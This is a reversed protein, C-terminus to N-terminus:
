LLLQSNHWRPPSSGPSAAGCCRHEVMAGIRDALIFIIIIIVILIIIIWQWCKGGTDKRQWCEGEAEGSGASVERRVVVLM